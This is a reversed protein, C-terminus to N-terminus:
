GEIREFKIQFISHSRSSNHNMLTARTSRNAEGTQMLNLAEFQNQIEYETLGEVHIGLLKDERM